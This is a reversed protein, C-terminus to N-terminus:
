PKLREILRDADQHGLIRAQRAYDLARVKDGTREFALATDYALTKDMPDASFADALAAAAETHRGLMGYCEAILRVVPGERRQTVDMPLLLLLASEPEGKRKLARAEILRWEKSDPQLRRAREIHQLALNVNNEGLAIDALTGWAIAKDPDLNVVRLLSAKAAETRNLKRQVMGLMLAYTANGPDGTQAMSFHEEARETLGASSAALGAAYELPHDRPGIACAKEYQTYADAFKKQAVLTEALAVRTEQDEPFSMAAQRLVSEARSWQGQKMQDRAWELMTSLAEHGPTAARAGNAKAPEFHGAKWLALFGGTMALCLVIILGTLLGSPRRMGDDEPELPRPLADWRRAAEALSRPPRPKRSFLSM